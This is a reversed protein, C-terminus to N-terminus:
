GNNKRAEIAKEMEPIQRECKRLYFEMFLAVVGCACPILTCSLFFLNLSAANQEVNAVFGVADLIYAFIPGGIAM